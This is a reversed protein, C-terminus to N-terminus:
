GQENVLTKLVEQVELAGQMRDKITRIEKEKIEIM